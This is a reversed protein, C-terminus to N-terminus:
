SREKQAPDIDKNGSGEKIVQEIVQNLTEFGSKAVSAAKDYLVQTRNPIENSLATISEKIKSPDVTCTWPGLLPSIPAPINSVNNLRQELDRIEQQNMLLDEKLRENEEQLHKLSQQEKKKNTDSILLAADLAISGLLLLVTFKNKM